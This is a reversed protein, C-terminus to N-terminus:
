GECNKLHKTLGAPSKCEKGCKPCTVTEPYLLTPPETEKPPEAPLEPPTLDQVSYGKQSLKEALPKNDTAAIGNAFELGWHIGNVPLNSKVQYM